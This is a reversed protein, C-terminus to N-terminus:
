GVTSKPTPSAGGNPGAAAVGGFMTLSLVVLVLAVVKRMSM